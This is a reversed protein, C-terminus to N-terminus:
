VSSRSEDADLQNKLREIVAAARERNGGDRTGRVPQVTVTVWGSWQSLEAEGSIHGGEPSGGIRRGFVTQAAPAANTAGLFCIARPCLVLIEHVLHKQACFRMVKRDPALRGHKPHVKAAHVFFFGAELFSNTGADLSLKNQRSLGCDFIQDLVHFVGLRLRDGRNTYFHGPDKGDEVDLPPPAVGVFLIRIDRRLNPIETTALPCEVRSPWREICERCVAIRDKSAIWADLQGTPTM